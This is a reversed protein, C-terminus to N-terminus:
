DMQVKITKILKNIENHQETYHIDSLTLNKKINNNNTKFEEDTVMNSSDTVSISSITDCDSLNNDINNINVNVDTSRNTIISSTDDFSHFDSMPDLSFDDTYINKTSKTNQLTKKNIYNKAYKNLLFTLDNNILETNNTNFSKFKDVIGAHLKEKQKKLDKYKSSVTKDNKINKIDKKFQMFINLKEQETKADILKEKTINRFNLIKEKIKELEICVTSYEDLLNSIDNYQNM